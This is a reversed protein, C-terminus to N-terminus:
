FSTNLYFNEETIIANLPVDWASSEFSKLKQWEYALGILYPKAPRVGNLLFSFSRDYFGGGMGLREGNNTFGLLPVLVVDLHCPEIISESSLPPEPINFQNKILPMNKKYVSFILKKEQLVPLYCDKHCQWATKIIIEPDIEQNIAIYAAIYQSKQFHPNQILQQTIKQSAITQDHLTLKARYACLKKRLIQRADM